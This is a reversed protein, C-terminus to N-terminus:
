KRPQQIIKPKQSAGKDHTPQPKEHFAKVAETPFAAADSAKAGSIIVAQAYVLYNTFFIGGTFSSLCCCSSVGSAKQPKDEGFEEKEEETQKPPSGDHKDDKNKQQVIRVGGVKQAPAHGAKLEATDEM